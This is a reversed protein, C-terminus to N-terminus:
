LSPPLSIDSGVLQAFGSSGNYDMIGSLLLSCGEAEM